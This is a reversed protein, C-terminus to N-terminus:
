AAETATFAAPTLFILDLALINFENNLETKRYWPNLGRFHEITENVSELQFTFTNYQLNFAIYCCFASIIDSNNAKLFAVWLRNSNLKKTVKNIIQYIADTNCRFTVTVGGIAEVTVNRDRKQGPQNKIVLPTPFPNIRKICM